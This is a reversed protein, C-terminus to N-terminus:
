LFETEFKNSRCCFQDRGIVLTIYFTFQQLHRGAYMGTSKDGVAFGRRAYAEKEKKNANALDDIFFSIIMMAHKPEDEEM